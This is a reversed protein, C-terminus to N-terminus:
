WRERLIMMGILDKWPVSTSLLFLWFLFCLVFVGLGISAPQYFLDKINIAPKVLFFDIVYIISLNLIYM